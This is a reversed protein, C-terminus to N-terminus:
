SSCPRMTNSATRARRLASVSGSFLRLAATSSSLSSTARMRWPRAMLVAYVWGTCAGVLAATIPLSAVDLGFKMLIPRVGYSLATGFAALMGHDLLSFRKGPKWSVLAVGAVIALTAVWHIATVPEGFLVIAFLTSFLPAANKIATAPSPGLREIAVYLWRRGIGAGFLGGLAFGVLARPTVEEWRLGGQFVLLCANLPIAISLAIVVASDVRGKRAFGQRILIPSLGFSLACLIAWVKDDVIM